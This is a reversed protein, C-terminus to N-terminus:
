GLLDSVRDFHESFLMMRFLLKLAKECGEKIHKEYLQKLYGDLVRISIADKCKYPADQKIIRERFDKLYSAGSVVLKEIYAYGLARYYCNGDAKCKYHIFFVM